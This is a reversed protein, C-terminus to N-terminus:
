FAGTNFAPTISKFSFLSVEFANDTKSIGRRRFGSNGAKLGNM